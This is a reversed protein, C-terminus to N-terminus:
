QDHPHAGTAISTLIQKNLGADVSQEACGIFPYFAKLHTFRNVRLPQCRNLVMAGVSARMGCKIQAGEFAPGTPAATSLAAHRSGLIIEGNTGVDIYLRM